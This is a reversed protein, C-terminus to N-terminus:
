VAGIRSRVQGAMQGYGVDNPHFTDTTTPFSIGTAWLTSDPACVRHGRFLDLVDVFRIRSDGAQTVALNIMQNLYYAAEYIRRLEENSVLTNVVTCNGSDKQYDGPDDPNPLVAPYSLVALRGDPRMNRIVDRYLITLQLQMTNLEVSSLLPAGSCDGTFCQTLKDRFDLDNGGLTISALRTRYLSLWGRQEREAGPQTNIFHEYRAGNCAKHTPLDIPLPQGRDGPLRFGTLGYPYALTSRRCDPATSLDVNTPAGNGASYSDGLSVYRIVPPPLGTSVPGTGLVVHLQLTGLGDCALYRLGPVPNCAAWPASAQMYLELIVEVARGGDYRDGQVEFAGYSAGYSGSGAFETGVYGIEGEYYPSWDVAASVGYISELWFDCSVDATYSTDSYPGIQADDGVFTGGYISPVCSFEDLDAASGAGSGGAFVLGTGKGAGTLAKPKTPKLKSRLPTIKKDTGPLVKANPRKAGPTFVDDPRKAPDAKGEAAIGNAPKPEAQVPQVNLLLGCLVAMVAVALGSRRRLRWKGSTTV